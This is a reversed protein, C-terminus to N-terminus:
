RQIPEPSATPTASERVAASLRRDFRGGPPLRLHVTRGDVLHISVDRERPRVREVADRENGRRHGYEALAIGGLIVLTLPVVLLSGAVAILGITATLAVSVVGLTLLDDDGLESWKAAPGRFLEVDDLAGQLEAKAREVTRWEAVVGRRRVREAAAVGGVSVLLLVFALPSPALVLVGVAAAAAIGGGLVALMAPATGRYTFGRRPRSRISYIADHAVDQFGGEESVFIVRRDTVGIAGESRYSDDFLAGATGDVLTEGPALYTRLENTSARM